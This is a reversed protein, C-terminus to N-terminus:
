QVKIEVDVGAPLDLKMLADVTQQTPELIDLLRKIESMTEQALKRSNTLLIAPSNTGHEAQGLLDTACIEGDVTDDAIVLTETPGAFLDIGVRGFLQRKAETVYANGPGVVVDCRPIAATGLALAAIAQAGGARLIRTAGAIRAAAAVEPVISGDRRPPTALVVDPVGALRAVAATMIVTSPYAARGGPVYCAARALPLVLCRLLGGDPLRQEYSEPVQPAHFARVRQAAKELAARVPERCRAALADWEPEPLFPDALDPGDFHRTLDRLADDGRARVEGIIRSVAAVVEPPTAAAARLGAAQARQAPDALDLLRIV